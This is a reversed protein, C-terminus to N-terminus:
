IANLGEMARVENYSMWGNSLMQRFFEAQFELDHTSALNSWGPHSFETVVPAARAVPALGAVPALLMAKLIDRRTQNM